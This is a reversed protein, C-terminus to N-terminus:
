TSDFDHIQLLQEAYAGPAANSVPYGSNPLTHNLGDALVEDDEILLINM